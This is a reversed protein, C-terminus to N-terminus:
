LLGFEYWCGDGAALLLAASRQHRLLLRGYVDGAVAGCGAEFLLVLHGRNCHVHRALLSSSGLAYNIISFPVVPSVCLLAM